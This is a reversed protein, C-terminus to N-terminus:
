KDKDGFVSIGSVILEPICSELLGKESDFSGIRYLDFDNPSYNMIGDSNIAYAFNRVASSDSHDVTPAMFDVKSDRICYVPYIM